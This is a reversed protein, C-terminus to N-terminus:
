GTTIVWAMFRFAALFVCGVVILIANAAFCAWSLGSRPNRREGASAYALWFGTAALVLGLCGATYVLPARLGTSGYVFQRATWDFRAFATGMAISLLVAATVTLVAGVKAQKEPNRLSLLAV